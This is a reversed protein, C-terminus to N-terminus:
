ISVIQTTNIQWGAKTKECQFTASGSHHYKRIEFEHSNLKKFLSFDSYNFQNGVSFNNKKLYKEDLILTKESIPNIRKFYPCDNFYVSFVFPKSNIEDKNKIRLKQIEETTITKNYFDIESCLIEYLSTFDSKESKYLPNTDEFDNIGDGDSDKSNPNLSIYNEFLDNYGDNDSDNKITELNIKLLLNDKVAEYKPGSLLQIEQEVQRIFACEVQLKGNIILPFKESNKVHIYKDTAIGLFYPREVKNIYEILWYGFDNQALYYDINQYNFKRLYQFENPSLLNKVDPFSYTYGSYNPDFATPNKIEEFELNPYKVELIVKQDVAKFDTYTNKEEKFNFCKDNGFDADPKKECSFILFLPTLYLVFKM